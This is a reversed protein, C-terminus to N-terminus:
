DSGNEREKQKIWDPFLVDRSLQKFNAADVERGEFRAKASLDVLAGSFSSLVVSIGFKRISAKIESRLQATTLSSM